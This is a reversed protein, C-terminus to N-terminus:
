VIDVIATRIRINLVVRDIFILIGQLAKVIEFM